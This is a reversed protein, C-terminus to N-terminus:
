QLRMYNRLYENNLFAYLLTGHTIQQEPTLEM